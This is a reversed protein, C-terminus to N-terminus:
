EVSDHSCEGEQSEREFTVKKFGIFDCFYFVGDDVFEVVDSMSLSRGTYGAPHDVNFMVFVQEPGTVELDGDFVLDYLEAPIREGYRKVFAQHDQFVLHHQDRKINIQYIKVRM